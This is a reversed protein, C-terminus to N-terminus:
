QWRSFKVISSMRLTGYRPINVFPFICNHSQRMVVGLINYPRGQGMSCGELLNWSFKTTSKAYDQWVSLCVFQVLFIVEKTASIILWYHMWGDVIAYIM